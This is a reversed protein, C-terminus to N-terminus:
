DSGEKFLQGRQKIGARQQRVRSLTAGVAVVVACQLSLRQSDGQRFIVLLHLIDDNGTARM